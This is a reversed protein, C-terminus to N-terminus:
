ECAVPPRQHRDRDDARQEARQHEAAATEKMQDRAPALLV